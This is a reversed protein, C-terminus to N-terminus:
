PMIRGLLHDLRIRLPYFFLSSTFVSVKDVKHEVRERTFGLAFGIRPRGYKLVEDLIFQADNSPISFGLGMSGGGVTDSWIQYDIGIMQGRM